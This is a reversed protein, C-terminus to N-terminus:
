PSSNLRFSLCDKRQTTRTDRNVSQAAMSYKTFLEYMRDMMESFRELDDDSFESEMDNMVSIVMADESKQFERDRDTIMVSKFRSDDSRRRRKVM